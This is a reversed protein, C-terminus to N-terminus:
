LPKKANAIANEAHIRFHPEASNVLLMEVVAICENLRLEIARCDEITVWTVTEETLRFASDTLPTKSPESM